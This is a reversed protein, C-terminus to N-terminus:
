SAPPPFLQYSFAEHGMELEMIQQIEDRIRDALQPTYLYQKEVKILRDKHKDLIQERRERNQKQEEETEKAAYPDPPVPDGEYYAYPEDSQQSTDDDPNGEPALAGRNERAPDAPSFGQGKLAGEATDTPTVDTPSTQETQEGSLGFGPKFPAGTNNNELTTPCQGCRCDPHHPEPAAARPHQGEGEEWVELPPALEEGAPTLVVRRVLAPDSQKDWTESDLRPAGANDEGSLGVGDSKKENESEHLPGHKLNAQCTRLLRNFANATQTSIRRDDLARMVLFCNAQISARDEPYLFPLARHLHHFQPPVISSAM